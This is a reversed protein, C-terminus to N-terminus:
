KISQDIPRTHAVMVAAYMDHNNNHVLQYQQTHAVLPIMFLGSGNYQWTHYAATTYSGCINSRIIWKWSSGVRNCIIRKKAYLGSINNHLIREWQMLTLPTDARTHQELSLVFSSDRGNNCVLQRWYQQMHPVEVITTFSGGGGNDYIWQAMTM